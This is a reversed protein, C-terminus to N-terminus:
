KPVSNKKTLTKHEGIKRKSEHIHPRQHSVQEKSQPELLAKRVIVKSIQHQVLFGCHIQSCQRQSRLQESVPGLFRKEEDASVM